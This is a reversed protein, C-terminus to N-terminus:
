MKEEVDEKMTKKTVDKGRGRKMKKKTVDKGRCGREDKKDCRREGEEEEDKGGRGVKEDRKKM